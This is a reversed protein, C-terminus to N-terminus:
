LDLFPKPPVDPMTVLAAMAYTFDINWKKYRENKGLKKAVNQGHKSSFNLGNAYQEAMKRDTSSRPNTQHHAKLTSLVYMKQHDDDIRYGSAGLMELGSYMEQLLKHANSNDNTFAGAIIRLGKHRAASHARKQLQNPIVQYKKDVRIEDPLTHWLRAAERLTDLASDDHPDVQVAKQIATLTTNEEGFLENLPGLIESLTKSLTDFLEPIVETVEDVVKGFEAFPDDGPQPKQKSTSTKQSKKPQESPVFVKEFLRTTDNWLDSAGDRMAKQSKTNRTKYMVLGAIGGFVLVALAPNAM